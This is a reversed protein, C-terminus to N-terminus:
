SHLVKLADLVVKVNHLGKYVPPPHRDLHLLGCVATMASRVSYEVTFVVDDPMETFQGIFALNTSGEPIVDPRDGEKRAMFVSGAYPMLCPICNSTEVIRALHDEFKLHHLIETLIETGTCEKMPKKVYNGPENVYLGYGWWIFLNDPQDSYHPHHFLTITVMWNSATLTMLGGRGAERGSLDEVLRIFLPDSCTVTFSEWASEDVHGNFAAPNGFQSRGRAMSEWLAWSGDRKSTILEPAQIMSGRTSDAVMSGNTVLVIDDAALDISQLQDHCVVQLRNVTIADTGPLFDIDTVHANTLINVDQRKLWEVLPVVIAEYQNYRTRQVASMTVMTPMLHIFRLLYRRMEMASHWTTFAFITSFMYWFNTKFFSAEFFDGVRRDGLMAEPIASLEFLALRDREKLGFREADLVEGQAGILRAKNYWSTTEYFDLVDDKISKRRDDFSPIFSLLERTCLYKEEFMRGGRMTYGTEPSGGADLAGGPKAGAEYITINGGLIGGEKIMFAAAALSAIGGGALYAKM